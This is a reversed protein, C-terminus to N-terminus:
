SQRPPVSLGQPLVLTLQLLMSHDKEPVANVLCAYAKWSNKGHVCCGAFGHRPLWSLLLVASDTLLM